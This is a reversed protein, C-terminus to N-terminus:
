NGTKENLCHGDLQKDLKFGESLWLILLVRKQFDPAIFSPLGHLYAGDEGLPNIM